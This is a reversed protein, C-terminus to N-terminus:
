DLWAQSPEFGYAAKVKAAPFNNFTWMGEEAMASRALLVTLAAAAALSLTLYRRTNM